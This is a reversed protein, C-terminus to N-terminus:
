NKGNNEEEVKQGTAEQKLRVDDLYALIKKELSVFAEDIKREHEAFKPEPDRWSHSRNKARSALQM